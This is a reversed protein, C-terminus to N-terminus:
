PLGRATFIYQAIVLLRAEALHSAQELAVRRLVTEVPQQHHCLGVLFRPQLLRRAVRRTRDTDHLHQWRRSRTVRDIDTLDVTQFVVDVGADLVQAEKGIAVEGTAVDALQVPM